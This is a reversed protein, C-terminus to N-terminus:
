GGTAARSKGFAINSRLQSYANPAYSTAVSMMKLALLAVSTSSALELALAESDDDKAEDKSDADKLVIVNVACEQEAERCQELFPITSNLVLWLKVHCTIEYTNGASSTVEALLITQSSLVAAEDASVHDHSGISM